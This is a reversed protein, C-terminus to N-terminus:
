WLATLGVSSAAKYAKLPSVVVGMIKRAHGLGQGPPNYPPQLPSLVWFQVAQPIPKYEEPIPWVLGEAHWFQKAPVYEKGAFV